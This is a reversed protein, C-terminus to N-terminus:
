TSYIVAFDEFAVPMEELFAYGLAKGEETFFRIHNRRWSELSDDEGERSCLELTMKRLPLITVATTEIGCRPNGAWDTVISLRGPKPLEM